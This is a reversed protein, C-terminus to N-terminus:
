ARKWGQSTQKYWNGNQWQMPLKRGRQKPPAIDLVETFQPTTQGGNVLRYRLGEDDRYLGNEEHIVRHGIRERAEERSGFRQAFDAFHVQLPWWCVIEKPETFSAHSERIYLWGDREELTEGVNPYGARRTAPEQAVLPEFGLSATIWAAGSLTSVIVDSVSTSRLHTPAFWRVERNQYWGDGDIHNTLRYVEELQQEPQKV